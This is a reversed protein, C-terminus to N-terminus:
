ILINPLFVMGFIQIASNIEDHMRQSRYAAHNKITDGIYIILDAFRPKFVTHTSGLRVGHESMM